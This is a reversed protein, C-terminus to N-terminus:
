RGLLFKQSFCQLLQKTSRRHQISIGGLLAGRLEAHTLPSSNIQSFQPILDHNQNEKAILAKFSKHIFAHSHYINESFISYFWKKSCKNSLQTNDTLAWLAQM